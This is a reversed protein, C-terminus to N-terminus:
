EAVMLLWCHAADNPYAVNFGFDHWQEIAPGVLRRKPEVAKAVFHYKHMARTRPLMEVAACADMAHQLKQGVFVGM